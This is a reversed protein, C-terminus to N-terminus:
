DRVLDAPLADADVKLGLAVAGAPSLGAVTQHLHLAGGWFAEDGFTDFRFIDRGRRVAAAANDRIMADNPNLDSSPSDSDGSLLGGAVMLGAILAASLCTSTRM